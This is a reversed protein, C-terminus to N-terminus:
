VLTYSKANKQEDIYGLKIAYSIAQARNEAQLINIVRAMHYKVTGETIALLKGIENYNLGKIILKLIDIQQKSLKNDYKKAFKSNKGKLYDMYIEKTTENEIFMERDVAIKNIADIIESSNSSKLFYGSAGFKISRYINKEDESTTLMIIKIDSNLEKIQKLTDIGDVENMFIDMLIIDPNLENIKKIVELGNNFCGVINIKNIELMYKLGEVFLIHDDVLMIKMESLKKQM